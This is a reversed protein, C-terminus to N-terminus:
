CSGARRVGSVIRFSRSRGIQQRRLRSAGIRRWAGLSPSATLAEALELLRAETAPEAVRVLVSTKAYSLEGRAFAERILPLEALRTGLREHERAQRPLLSCRWALWRAFTLGEAGWSRRRECEAALGVLRCLGADVRAAQEALERELEEESFASLDEDVFMHEYRLCGAPRLRYRAGPPPLLRVPAGSRTPM